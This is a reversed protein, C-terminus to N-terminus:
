RQTIRLEANRMGCEANERHGSARVVGQRGDGVGGGGRRGGRKRGDHEVGRGDGGGGGAGLAAEIEPEIQVGAGGEVLKGDGGLGEPAKGGDM